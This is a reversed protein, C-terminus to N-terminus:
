ECVAITRRRFPHGYLEAALRLGTYHAKIASFQSFKEYKTAISCFESRTQTKGLRIQESLVVTTATRIVSERVAKM